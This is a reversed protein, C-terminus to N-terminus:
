KKMRRISTALDYRGIGPSEIGKIAAEELGANYAAKYLRESYAFFEDDEIHVQNCQIAVRKIDSKM